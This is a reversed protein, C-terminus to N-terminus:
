TKNSDNWKTSYRWSWAFIGKSCQGSKMSPRESHGCKKLVHEVTNNHLTQYRWVCWPLSCLVRLPFTPIPIHPGSLTSKRARPNQLPGKKIQFNTKIYTANKCFAYNGIFKDKPKDIPQWFTSICGLKCQLFCQNTKFLARWSVFPKSIPLLNADERTKNYPPPRFKPGCMWVWSLTSYGGPAYCTIKSSNKSTKDGLCGHNWESFHRFCSNTGRSICFRQVSPQYFLSKSKDIYAIENETWMIPGITLISFRLLMCLLVHSKIPYIKCSCNITIKTSIYQGNKM